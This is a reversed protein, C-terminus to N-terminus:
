EWELFRFSWSGYVQTMDTMIGSALGKNRKGAGRSKQHHQARLSSEQKWFGDTRPPFLPNEFMDSSSVEQRRPPVAETTTSAATIIGDGKRRKQGGKRNSHQHHKNQKNKHDNSSNAQKAEDANVATSAAEPVTSDVAATAEEDENAEVSALYCCLVYSVFLIWTLRQVKSSLRISGMKASKPM